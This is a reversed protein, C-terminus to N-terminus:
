ETLKFKNLYNTLTTGNSDAPNYKGNTKLFKSMGSKGGLHAVAVLGNLTVLVGNIEKGIYKDLGRSNIYTVIDSTHWDFVEDQLEANELFEQKTFDKGTAKKFDALRADGFQYAGMYGESNVVMYNDSSESQKMAVKFNKDASALMVTKEKKISAQKDDDPFFDNLSMNLKIDTGPLTYTNDNFKFELFDGKDNKVPAFEGDPLIIGFILGEGDSTNRWEGNEKVNINFESEIDVTLTDDKMSGFAVAGWIDIYHDKIIETKAIIDDIHGDLLRKGDWIKPIYYSGEIQFNDKIISIAKKRAVVENTNETFMTNLTYYTLVEVINDMQDVTDASNAGTNQAVIDEFLRIGKSTRIDKQLKKFDVGNEDGWKKLNEKKEPSDISLFAATLEPNQFYSSLIATEPLGDNLLQQFAKNNLDGFQLELTQLMAVRTKEDGNKYNYVFRKSQDSTMVKQEFNPVGLDTQIKVLTTALESELINKQQQDETSEITKLISQVDENTDIIFKAPDSSLLDQRNQVVSNYYKKKEEGVLFDIAGSQVKADIELEYQEITKSLDKSNITNLIKVKSITDDIVELQNKMETITDAPLVKKAFDMDFPVPEKGLAAAAVYNKWDNNIEPLLVNKVNTILKQRNELTLNPYFDENLLKTLAGKPDDTIDKTAEYAEIEGPISDILTKLQANSIRGSYNDTYLKTLDTQLVSYDFGGEALFATTLLREKKLNVNNDLETIINKSVASNTRFIGKQVEALAYNNFLTKTSNNSALGSYKQILANSKEKVISQAQEKNALINAEEYVSQMDNIFDNELRLAETKNQADNEKIKFKIVAETAPALATAVTQNLGMQINSTVGTVQEITGEAEFKPIKPM